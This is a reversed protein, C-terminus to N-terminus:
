TSIVPLQITFTSGKGLESKVSISGNHAEIIRRTIALGMGSSKEVTEGTKGTYFDEFIYPLDEQSIGVGHDSVLITIYGDKEMTTITVHSGPRSFKVANGLINGVAEVLTGEDGIILSHPADSTARIEVDNRTAQPQINEMAKALVSGLKIESFNEKLKNVDVSIVRLWTHILNILDSIKTKMRELREQQEVDLKGELDSELLYLNQQVASLPSKLEHSVVAAFHERLMEKERKLAITELVLRRRDIGRNTILRFEDPTFPKPLFDFAGNKMAEVASSVTSYGTIVISVINPDIQRIRTLVEFGSLGPMKLDVFVLDPKFEPLMEIGLEGNSVTSVQHNTKKLIQKCSDLVVEEDDIILIRAPKEMEQM